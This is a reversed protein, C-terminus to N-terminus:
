SRPHDRGSRDSAQSTSGPPAANVPEPIPWARIALALIALMGLGFGPVITVPALFSVILYLAMLAGAGYIWRELVAGGLVSSSIALLADVRLVDEVSLGRSLGYARHLTMAVMPLTLFLLIHRHHPARFVSRRFLIAAVAIAVLGGMGQVLVGGVGIDFRWSTRLGASVFSVLSLLGVVVLARRRQRYISADRDPDRALVRELVALLATMSEFREEPRRSLARQVAAHVEVPVDTQPRPKMVGELVRTRLALLTEGEFPLVGYLARHMAAAFSWQDSAPVVEGEGFHEPSMYGPTGMVTGAHTLTVDLAMGALEDDNARRAVAAARALGFDVVRVRGDQGVLVNEPKFDRHLLGAEHAAALGRGAQVFMALIARWGRSEERLWRALTVGEVYEMAIFVDDREVGVEHVAVVNPHAIRAMAQAERLLRARAAPGHRGKVVKIAVARGLAPDHAQYVVGMGGEAVERDVRFRGISRGIAEEARRRAHPSEPPTAAESTGPDFRLLEEVEARLAADSGCAEDLFRAREDPSRDVAEAFLEVVRDSRPTSV